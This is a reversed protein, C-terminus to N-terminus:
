RSRARVPSDTASLPIKGALCQDMFAKHHSPEKTSPGNSPGASRQIALAYCTDWTQNDQASAPGALSSTALVALIAAIAVNNSKTNM